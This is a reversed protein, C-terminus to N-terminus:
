PSQPYSEFIQYTKGLEAPLNSLLVAPKVAAAEMERFHAQAPLFVADARSFSVYLAREKPRFTWTAIAQADSKTPSWDQFTPWDDRIKRRIEPRCLATLQTGLGWEVCYIADAQRGKKNLYKALLEIRPSFRGWFNAAEDFRSFHAALSRVEAGAWALLLLGQVVTVPFRMQSPLARVFLFAASFCALLDLPFLMITHHAGGAQPTLAIQLFIVGFMVLCWLCFRLTRRDIKNSSGGSAAHGVAALVLFVITLTLVGWGTWSPLSPVSKFWMCATAAGNCTGIYLEWIQVIRGSFASTQPKQLLPFIFWLAILGAACLGLGVILLLLPRVCKLKRLMIGGYAAFTAILLAIVFWIFNFKDWFGLVCLGLLSWCSKQVGDLWRFLLVLCLAKLFLMFVVPGWDVKTLFIFGPHLACAASFFLAWRPTLIIRVLAYGLVLTGCSMLVAPLRISWASVGFLAFIPPYIWSKEAGVYPSIMLPVGFWSKYAPTGVAPSIVFMEDYYLGPAHIRYTALTVFIVLSILLALLEWRAWARPSAGPLGDEHSKVQEPM